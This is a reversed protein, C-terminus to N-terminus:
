KKIKDFLSRLYILFLISLVPSGQPIGTEIAKIDDRKNDFVLVVRRNSMFDNIWNVM